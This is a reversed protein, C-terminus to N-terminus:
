KMFMLDSRLVYKTGKLVPSGEHLMCEQGHRHLLATGRKLAPVLTQRPKGREDKYFLTEGGEVGDEMGTLYILLTWESKAGTLPDRVSDDYHPGFYQGPSYKYVRINSNCSQPLRPQDTAAPLRRVSTPYPFSPLHPTILAHMRQAFDLSSVSFRQNVREAEGRKKQPTLELPLSDIFKVFSKCEAPTLLDDILLIQDELFTTCELDSKPSLEPFVVQVQQPTAGPAPTNAGPKETKKKAM